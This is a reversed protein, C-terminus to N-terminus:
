LALQRKVQLVLDPWPTLPDISLAQITSPPLKPVESPSFKSSEARYRKSFKKGLVAAAGLEVLWGAPGLFTLVSAGVGPIASAGRLAGLIGVSTATLGGDADVLGISVITNMLSKEIGKESARRVALLVVPLLDLPTACLGHLSVFSAKTPIETGNPATWNYVASKGVALIESITGVDVDTDRLQQVFRITLARIETRSGVKSM